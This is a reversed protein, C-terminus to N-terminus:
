HMEVGSSSPPPLTREEDAPPSRNLHVDHQRRPQLLAPTPGPLGPTGLKPKGIAPFFEIFGYTTVDFKLVEM